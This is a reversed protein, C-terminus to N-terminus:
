TRKFFWGIAIQKPIINFLWKLMLHELHQMWISYALSNWLHKRTQYRFVFKDFFGFIHHWIKDKISIDFNTVIELLNKKHINSSFSVHLGHQAQLFETVFTDVAPNCYTRLIESKEWRSKRGTFQLTTLSSCQYHNWWSM